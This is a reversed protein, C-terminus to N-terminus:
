IKHKKSCQEFINKLLGINKNCQVSISISIKSMRLLSVPKSQKIYFSSLLFCTNNQILQTSQIHLKYLVIQIYRNSM